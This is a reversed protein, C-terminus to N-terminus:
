TVVERVCRSENDSIARGALSRLSPETILLFQSQNALSLKGKESRSLREVVPSQRVLRCQRELVQSFWAAAENGCNLGEVREGCVKAKCVLAAEIDRKDMNITLPVECSSMGPAHLILKGTALNIQPSILCMNPAQKQSICLGSDSVVMWERDYMLGKAGIQWETVDSAGCSKVPYVFIRKLWAFSKEKDTNQEDDEVCETSRSGSVALSSEELGRVLTDHSVNSSVEVQSGVSRSSYHPVHPMEHIARPHTYCYKIFQVFYDAEEFTSMYGFSIRLCGTPFGDVLDIDDGCVHGAELSHKLQEGSLGIFRQCAGTNCFCGTRLHIDFVSALKEVQSYGVYTGDPELVNFSVVPGQTGADTYDTDSYVQCVSQGNGHKVSVLKDYVYKALSLTHSSIATMCGTLRDLVDFGHQVAIIDLFPLTGNEFKDALDQRFVVFNEGSIMAQVTGGGFYSKGLLFRCDNRVILAGLGTPFGFMKYFSLTVFEAPFEFLDLRSTCVFSAADLMVHWNCGISVGNIRLCGDHAHAVWKLPYKRGSFNCQAPYALLHHVDIQSDASLSHKTFYGSSSVSIDCERFCSVRAGRQMALERIGVVSTHSDHFYCYVSRGEQMNIDGLIVDTANNCSKGRSWQFNEGILKLSDTCNSTFVVSYTRSNTNFHRLIRERVRDIIQTSLLSSSHSSHPNGYVRTSLDRHFLDLQSQAYHTAGAHDLYVIGNLRSFEKDRISDINHPYECQKLKSSFSSVAM